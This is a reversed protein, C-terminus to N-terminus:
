REHEPEEAAFRRDLRDMCWAYYFVLAIFVYIAGQQALWFGLPVAGVRFRNLPEVFLVAGGLSVGAWVLLLKRILRENTEWYRRPPAPPRGM